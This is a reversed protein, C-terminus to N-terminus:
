QPVRILLRQGQRDSVVQGRAARKRAADATPAMGEAAYQEPTVWRYRAQDLYPQLAVALAELDGAHLELAGLRVGLGRGRFVSLASLPDVM